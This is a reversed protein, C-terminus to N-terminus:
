YSENKVSIIYLIKEAAMEIESFGDFQPDSTLFHFNTM